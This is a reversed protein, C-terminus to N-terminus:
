SPFLKQFSIFKLLKSFVKMSNLKEKKKDAVTYTFIENCHSIYQM